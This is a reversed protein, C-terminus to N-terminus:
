SGDGADALPAVDGADPAEDARKLKITLVAGNPKEMRKKVMLKGMPPVVIEDAKDLAKGLEDLLVDMVMKVDSRKVSVRNSVAEILDPRRLREDAEATAPAAPEPAKAMKTPTEKVVGLPAAAKEKATSKTSTTRSRTTGTASRRPGASTSKRKTTKTSKTTTAM